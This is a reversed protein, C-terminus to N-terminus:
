VLFLGRLYTHFRYLKQLFAIHFTGESHIGSSAECSQQCSVSWLKKNSTWIIFRKKPTFSSEFPKRSIYAMWCSVNYNSVTKSPLNYWYETVISQQGESCDTSIRTHLCYPTDLSTAVLSMPLYVRCAKWYTRM